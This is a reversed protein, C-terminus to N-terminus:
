RAMLSDVFRSAGLGAQFSGTSVNPLLDNTSHLTSCRRRSGSGVNDVIAFSSFSSAVSSKVWTHALFLSM